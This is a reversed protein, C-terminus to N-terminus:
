EGRRKRQYQARFWFIAFFGLILVSGVIFGLAPSFEGIGLVITPLFYLVVGAAALIIAAAIAQSKAEQMM